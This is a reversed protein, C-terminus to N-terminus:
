TAMMIILSLFEALGSVIKYTRKTKGLIWGWFEDWQSNQCSKLDGHGEWHRSLKQDVTWTKKEIKERRIRM